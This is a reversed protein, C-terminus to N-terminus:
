TRDVRSFMALVLSSHRVRIQDLAIPRRCRKPLNKPLARFRDAMTEGTRFSPSRSRTPTFSPLCPDFTLKRSREEGASVLEEQSNLRRSHFETSM